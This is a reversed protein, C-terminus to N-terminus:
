RLSPLGYKEELSQFYLDMNNRNYKHAGSIAGYINGSYWGSEFMLLIGGAVNNGHDFAEYAGWIFFGNLVLTIVGDQIRGTYIQGVGPIISLIGALAPSKHPLTPFDGADRALGAATDYFPSEAEVKGFEEIAREYSKNKLYCWGLMVQAKKTLDDEPYREIFSSFKGIAHPYDEKLCYTEGIHYSAEIGAKRDHYDETIKRFYDLALDWKKGKQYALAIKLKAKLAHPHDPYFFIVREFETIARYYDEKLYLYDAFSFIEEPDNLEEASNAPTIQSFLIFFSTLFLFIAKGLFQNTRSLQSKKM